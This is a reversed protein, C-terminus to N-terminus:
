EGGNLVLPNGNMHDLKGACILAVADAVEEPTIIKNLPNTSRVKAEADARSLNQHRELGAIVRETMDTMVFAPCVPVTIIGRKGYELALSKALGVLAHKSACYAAQRKFGKVGAVSSVICIKGESRSLMLPLAAQVFWFTGHVNVDFMEMWKNTAFADTNGGSGIGANCVLSHLQWGNQLVKDIADKATQPDKIDGVVFHCVGSLARIDSSVSQLASQDRGVIVLNSSSVLAHCIAKGIGKGGGTVITARTTNM